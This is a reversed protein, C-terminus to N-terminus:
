RLKPLVPTIRPFRKGVSELNSHAKLPTKKVIKGKKNYTGKQSLYGIEGQTSKAKVVRYEEDTFDDDKTLPNINFQVLQKNILYM